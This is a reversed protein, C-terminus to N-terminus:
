YESSVSDENWYEIFLKNNCLAKKELESKEQELNEAKSILKKNIRELLLKEQATEKSEEVVLERKTTSDESSM